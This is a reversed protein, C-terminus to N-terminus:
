QSTKKRKERIKILEDEIFQRVTLDETEDMPDELDKSLALRLLGRLMRNEDSWSKPPLVTAISKNNRDYVVKMEVGEVVVLFISFRNSPKDLKAFRRRVSKADLIFVMDKM